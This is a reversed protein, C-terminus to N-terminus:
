LGVQSNTPLVITLKFDKFIALELGTYIQKLVFFCILSFINALDFKLYFLLSNLLYRLVFLEFMQRTM